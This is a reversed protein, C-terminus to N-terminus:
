RFLTFLTIFHSTKKTTVQASRSIPSLCLHAGGDRISLLLMPVVSLTLSLSLTAVSTFHLLSPGPLLLEHHTATGCGTVVAWALSSGGGGGRAPSSAAGKGVDEAGPALPVIGPGEEPSVVFRAVVVLVGRVLLEGGGGRRGLHVMGMRVLHPM